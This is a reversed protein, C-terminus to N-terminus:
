ETVAEEAELYDKIQQKGLRETVRKLIRLDKDKQLSAVHKYTLEHFEQKEKIIWYAAEALKHAIAVIAKSAGIRSKLYHFKAMYFTDKTKVAAWAVEILLTKVYRQMSQIKGSLNKGASEKKGPAVGCWSCFHQSTPFNSLDFGVESLLILASKSSFGPITQIREFTAKHSDDDLLISELEAELERIQMTLYNNYNMMRSLSERHIPRVYGDMSEKIQEVKNRLGSYVKKKIVDSDYEAGSILLNILNTGSTGTVDTLCSSLKIGAGQLIGHIIQRVCSRMQLLDKRLRSIMRADRIQSPPIFSPKILDYRTIKAIWESDAKDTKKGPINRIKRANYLNVAIHGELVNHVAYWYKGTSEIGVLKCQNSVLWDRMQLLDSKTTKFVKYETKLGKKLNPIIRSVSVFDRHVDIGACFENVVQFAEKLKDKSTTM